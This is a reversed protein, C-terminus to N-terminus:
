VAIEDIEANSISQVDINAQVVSFDAAQYATAYDAICFIMDGPECSQGVYTGATQVVWYWGKKYANLGSIAAPATVTGQFSAAGVKAAAVAETVFATTAIQTTNTGAAATPAKPTGTLTPSAKPALSSIATHVAGGTVFSTNGSAVSGAEITADLKGNQDLALALGSTGATTDISKVVNEEAGAEIGDLKTKEATTFNNDTHVYAADVAFSSDNTLHSTQTPVKITALGSSVDIATHAGATTKVGTITGLNDTKANWGQIDTAKIGAAPSAAFVPDTESTLFGSDNTLHSTKTPVNFEAAGSTKNIATHKGATTKVQTITGTNTTYGKAEVWAKIKSWLYILGNQDLFKSM